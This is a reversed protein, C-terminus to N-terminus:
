PSTRMAVAENYKRVGSDYDELEACIKFSQVSENNLLRKKLAPVRKKQKPPVV